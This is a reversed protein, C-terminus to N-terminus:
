FKGDQSKIVVPPPCNFFAENFSFQFSGPAFIFPLIQEDNIPETIVRFEKTINIFIISVIIQHENYINLLTLKM